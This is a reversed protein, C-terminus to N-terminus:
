TTEKLKTEIAKIVEGNTECDLVIDVREDNTLGVWQRQKAQYRALETKHQCYENMGEHPHSRACPDDIAILAREWLYNRVYDDEIHLPMLTM